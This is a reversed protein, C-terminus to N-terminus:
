DKYIKGIAFHLLGLQAPKAFSALLSLIQALSPEPKFAHQIDLSLEPELSLTIESSHEGQAHIYIQNLVPSSLINKTQYVRSNQHANPAGCFSSQTM